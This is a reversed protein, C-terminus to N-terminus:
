AAVSPQTLMSSAMTLDMGTRLADCIDIVDKRDLQTSLPLNLVEASAQAARPFDEAHCTEQPFPFLTGVDIGHSWLHQRVAERGHAPIRVCFHSLASSDNAPLQVSDSFGGLQKRYEDTLQIRRESFADSKTLNQMSRIVHLRTPPRQWEHSNITFPSNHDANHTNRQQQRSRLQRYLIPEHAITRLLLSVNWRCHDLRTASALDLNRRQLLMAATDDCQTLAMGGWGAYLSKGLGFSLVTIDSRQMRRMDAPAPIAMAMDFIRLKADQVLTQALDQPSFRHGFMESLIVTRCGSAMGSCDMLLSNPSCDALRVAPQCEMVAHHVAGCNFAPCIIEADSTMHFQITRTIGYRASPLWVAHRVDLRQQYQRELQEIGGSDFLGRLATGALAASGFPPRHRPIM